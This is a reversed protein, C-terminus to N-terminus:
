QILINFTTSYTGYGNYSQLAPDNWTTWSTLEWPYFFSRPIEPSGNLFKVEWKSPSISDDSPYPFEWSKGNHPHNCAILFCSSGTPLYLKTRIEGTGDNFKIFGKDGNMPNYYELARAIGSLSITLDM